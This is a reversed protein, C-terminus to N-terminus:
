KLPYKRYCVEDLIEKTASLPFLEKISLVASRIHSKELDKNNRKYNVEIYLDYIPRWPLTVDDRKIM